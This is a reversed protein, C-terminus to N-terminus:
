KDAWSSQKGFGIGILPITPRFKEVEDYVAAIVKDSIKPNTPCQIEDHVQLPRVMWESVGAPQFEWVRCQVRKTVCAGTSQIRHNSAQRLKGNQLAFAAGYLASRVAGVMSQQGKSSRIVVGEVRSWSEPPNQALKFLELILYNELVFYRRYGTLSEIYDAAKRYFLAGDGYLSTHEALVKRRAEGAVKFRQWFAHFGQVAQAETVGLTVAIKRPQAGYMTAFAANKSPNYKNETKHGKSAMIGDYGLEPFFGAGFIGHFSKCIAGGCTFCHEDKGDTWRAAGCVCATETEQLGRFAHEPDHRASREICAHCVLKGDIVEVPTNCFDCTTLLKRLEPDGYDAEAIAIEFSKMDGGLLDEGEFALPFCSRVETTKDIGQANLGDTGSMRGSLAGIVKFSAHFRGARRLKELVECKKKAARAALVADCREKAHPLLKALAKLANKDTGDKWAIAQELPTLVENIHAQVQRWDRPAKRSVARYKEILVDLDVLSVMYGKWRCAAVCCALLSDDDNGETWGTYEHLRRTLDVDRIAYRRAKENFRWHDVHIRLLDPWGVEAKFAFPAYGYEKPFLKKDLAVEDFRDGDSKLLHKGLAKLGASPRFRLVVDSLGPKDEIPCVKFRPAYSKYGAFLIPDLRVRKTLERALAPALRDPIRRIRVDDREMTVQLETKRFHLFLDLVGRPKLCVGDRAEREVASATDATPVEDPDLLRLINYLKNVHFWDFALNYGIVQCECFEELLQMTEWAPKTWVDWTQVEEDDYAWQILVAVGHLGCTELDLYCRKM